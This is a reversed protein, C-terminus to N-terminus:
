NIPRFCALVVFFYWKVLKKAIFFDCFQKPFPLFFRLFTHGKGDQGGGGGLHGPNPSIKEANKITEM